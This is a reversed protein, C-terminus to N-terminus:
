YPSNGSARQAALSKCLPSTTSPAVTSFRNRDKVPGAFARVDSVDAFASM